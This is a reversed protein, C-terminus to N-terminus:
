GAPLAPDREELIDRCRMEIAPKIEPHPLIYFREARVADFVAAAIVAPETGQALLRRYDEEMEAAEPRVEAGGSRERVADLIRTKVFGPCLVSVKVKAGLAALELHLSESLSVVAHKSLSYDAGFAGCILGAASATNVVHGESEQALLIPVFTRVGHIVGWLNVGLVLEWDQLGKEWSPAPRSALGANNCLIHVAGFARLSEQALAEVETARSVDARV